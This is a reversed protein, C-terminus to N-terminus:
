YRIYSQPRAQFAAKTAESEFLFLRGQYWTAYSLNGQVRFGTSRRVVDTRGAAPAYRTPNADFKAKAQASSFHYLHNEFVSKFQPRIDVLTSQEQLAVPCFGRLGVLGARRSILHM